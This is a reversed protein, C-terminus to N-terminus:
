QYFLFCNARRLQILAGEITQFHGGSASISTQVVCFSGFSFLKESFGSLLSHPM